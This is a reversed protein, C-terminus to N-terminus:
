KAASFRATKILINISNINTRIAGSPAEAALAQEMQYAIQDQQVGLNM